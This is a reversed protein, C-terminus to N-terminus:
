DVVLLNNNGEEGYIGDMQKNNSAWRYTYEWKLNQTAFRLIYLNLVLTHNKHIHVRNQTLSKNTVKVNFSTESQIYDTCEPFWKEINGM